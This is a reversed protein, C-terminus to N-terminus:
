ERPRTSGSSSTAARETTVCCCRATTTSSWSARPVSGPVDYTTRTGATRLELVAPRGPRLVTCAAYSSSPSVRWSIRQDTAAVARPCEVETSM